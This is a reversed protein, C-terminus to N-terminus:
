INFQYLPKNNLNMIISSSAIAMNTNIVINGSFANFHINNKIITIHTCNQKQKNAAQHLTDADDEPLFYHFFTVWFERTVNMGGDHACLACM